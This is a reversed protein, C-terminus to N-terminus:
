LNMCGGDEKARLISAALVESANCCQGCRYLVLLASDIDVTFRQLFRFGTIETALKKEREKNEKQGKEKM